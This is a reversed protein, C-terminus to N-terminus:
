QICKLQQSYKQQPVIDLCSKRKGRLYQVVQGYTDVLQGVDTLPPLLSEHVGGVTVERCKQDLFTADVRAEHYSM